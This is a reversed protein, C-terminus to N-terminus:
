RTPTGDNTTAAAFGWILEWPDWKFEPQLNPLSSPITWPELLFKGKFKRGLKGKIKGPM